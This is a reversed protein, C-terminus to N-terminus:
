AKKLLQKLMEKIEDIDNKMEDIQNFKKKRRKYAILAENNTQVTAGENEKARVFGDQTKIM